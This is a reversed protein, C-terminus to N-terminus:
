LLPQHIGLVIPNEAIHKSSDLFYGYAWPFSSNGKVYDCHCSIANSEVLFIFLPPLSNKVYPDPKSIYDFVLTRSVIVSRSLIVAQCTSHHSCNRGQHAVCGRTAAQVQSSESECGNQVGPLKGVEVAERPIQASVVALGAISHHTHSVLSQTASSGQSM